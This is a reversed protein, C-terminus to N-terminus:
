CSFPNDYGTPHCAFLHSIDDWSIINQETYYSIWTNTFEQTNAFIGGIIGNSETTTFFILGRNPYVFELGTREHREVIPPIGFWNIVDYICLHINHFSIRWVIDDESDIWISANVGFRENLALEHTKWNLTYTGGDFRSMVFEYEIALEGVIQDVQQRTSTSPQIGLWCIEECDDDLVRVDSLIQCSSVTPVFLVLVILWLGSKLVVYTM